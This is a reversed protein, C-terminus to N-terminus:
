ANRSHQRRRSSWFPRPSAGRRRRLRIRASYVRKGASAVSVGLARAVARLSEGLFYLVTVAQREGAPLKAVARQIMRQAEHRSPLEAPDCAGDPVEAADSAYGLVEASARRPRRARAGQTRVLRKLWSGFAAPERLNPLRRWAIVSGSM